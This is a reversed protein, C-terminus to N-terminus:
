VGAARATSRPQTAQRLFAPLDRLLHRKNLRAKAGARLIADAEEDELSSLGIVCATPNDKLLAATADVGNGQPMKVDMLIVDPHLQRAFALAERGNRAEAVVDMDPQRRLVEAVALRFSFEDDVVLVRLADM